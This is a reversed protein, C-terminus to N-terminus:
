NELIILFNMRNIKGLKKNNKKKKLGSNNDMIRRNKIKKMEVKNGIFIHIPIPNNPIEPVKVESVTGCGNTRTTTQYM